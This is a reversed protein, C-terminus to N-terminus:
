WRAKFKKKLKIKFFKVPVFFEGDNKIIKLDMHMQSEKAM